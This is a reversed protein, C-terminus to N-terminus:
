GLTVWASRDRDFCFLGCGHLCWRYYDYSIGGIDRQEVWELWTGCEPCPRETGVADPVSTGEEALLASSVRDLRHGNRILDDARESRARALVERTRELLFSPPVPKLLVADAPAASGAASTVVIIPVRELTPNLKIAAIMDDTDAADSGDTDAVIVDPKLEEAAAVAEGPDRTAAVWLGADEFSRTLREIADRDRDVLLVIAPLELPQTDHSVPM